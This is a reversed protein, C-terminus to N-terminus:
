FWDEDYVEICHAEGNGYSLRYRQGEFECHKAFPEVAEAIEWFLSNAYYRSTKLKGEFRRRAM